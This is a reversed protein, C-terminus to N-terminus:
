MRIRNMQKNMWESMWEVTISIRSNEPFQQTHTDHFGFLIQFMGTAWLVWSRSSFAPFPGAHNTHTSNAGPAMNEQTQRQGTWRLEAARSGGPRPKWERVGTDGPGAGMARREVSDREEKKWGLAGQVRRNMGYFDWSGQTRLQAKLKGALCDWRRWVSQLQITQGM